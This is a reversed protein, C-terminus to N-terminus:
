QAAAHINCCSSSIIISDSDIQAIVIGEQPNCPNDPNVLRRLKVTSIQSPPMLVHGTKLLREWRSDSSNHPGFATSLQVAGGAQSPEILESRLRLRM